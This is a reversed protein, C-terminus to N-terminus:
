NVKIIEVYDVIFKPYYATYDVQVEGTVKVLDNKDFNLGSYDDAQLDIPMVGTSDLIVFSKAFGDYYVSGEMTVYRDQITKKAAAVNGPFAPVIHREGNVVKTAHRPHYSTVTVEKVIVEKPEEQVEQVAVQTESSQEEDDQWWMMKKMTACGTLNALLLMLLSLLAIKKM